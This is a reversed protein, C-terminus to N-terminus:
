SRPVGSTESVMRVKGDRVYDRSVLEPFTESASSAASLPVPLGRLPVDHCPCLREGLTTGDQPIGSYLKASTLTLPPTEREAM